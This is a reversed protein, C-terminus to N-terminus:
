RETPVGGDEDWERQTRCIRRNLRSGTLQARVCIERNPDPTATRAAISSGQEPARPDTRAASGPETFAMSLSAAAVLAAVRAFRYASSMSM